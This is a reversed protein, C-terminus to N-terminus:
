LLPQQIRPLRKKWLLVGKALGGTFLLAAGRRGHGAKKGYRPLRLLPILAVALVAAMALNVWLHNRIYTSGSFENPASGFLLLIVGWDLSDMMSNGVLYDNM